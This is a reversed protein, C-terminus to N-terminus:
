PQDTTSDFDVADSGPAATTVFQGASESRAYTSGDPALAATKVIYTGAELSTPLPIILEMATRQQATLAQNDLTSHLVPQGQNSFVDVSLTLNVNQDSFADQHVTVSQGAELYTPSVWNALLQVTSSGLSVTTAAPQETVFKAMAALDIQKADSTKDYFLSWAWAGAYGKAQFDKMREATDVDAGGYFEGIQIPLDDFGYTSRASHLDVCRACALGSSM